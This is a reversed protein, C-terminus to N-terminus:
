SLVCECRPHVSVAFVVEIVDGDSISLFELDQIGSAAAVDLDVVGEEGVKAVDRHELSQFVFSLVRVGEEVRVDPQVVVAESRTRSVHRDAQVETSPVKPVRDMESLSTIIRDRHLQEVLHVHVTIVELIIGLAGTRKELVRNSKRERRKTGDVLHSVRYQLCM